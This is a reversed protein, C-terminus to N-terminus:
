RTPTRARGIRESGHRLRRSRARANFAAKSGAEADAPLSQGDNSGRRAAAAKQEDLVSEAQEESSRIRSVCDTSLTAGDNRAQLTPDAVYTWFNPDGANKNAFM